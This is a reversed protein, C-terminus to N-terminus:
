RGSDTTTFPPQKARRRAAARREIASSVEILVMGISIGVL